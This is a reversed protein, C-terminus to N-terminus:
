IGLIKFMEEISSCETVRGAAEDELARDIANQHITSQM